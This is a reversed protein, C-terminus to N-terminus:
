PFLGGLDYRAQCIVTFRPDDWLMGALSYQCACWMFCAIAQELTMRM